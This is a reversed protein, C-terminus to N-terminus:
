IPSSTVFPSNTIKPRCEVDDRARSDGIQTKNRTSFAEQKGGNHIIEWIHFMMKNKYMKGTDLLFLFGLNVIQLLITLWSFSQLFVFLCIIFPHIMETHRHSLCPSFSLPKIQLCSSRSSETSLLNYFLCSQQQQTRHPKWWPPLHFLLLALSGRFSFLTFSPLYSYCHLSTCHSLLCFSDM